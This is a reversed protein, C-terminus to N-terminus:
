SRAGSLAQLPLELAAESGQAGRRLEFAGGHEAAIRRVIRLGHGRRRRGALRTALDGPGERRRGPRRRCPGRDSVTILLRGQERATGVAIEPGGHEVANALLNDLAQALLCRDGIVVAEGAASGECVRLSGGGLAVRPRWRSAAAALLPRVDVPARAPATPEGNIERELRELATAALQLSDEVSSRSGAQGLPAALALTQLPRRLEHLAENLATRRRGASLGRAAAAAALSAGLPWAAAVGGLDLTLV